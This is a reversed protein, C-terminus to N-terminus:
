IMVDNILCLLKDWCKQLVRSGFESHPCNFHLSSKVSTLVEVFVSNVFNYKLQKGAPSLM